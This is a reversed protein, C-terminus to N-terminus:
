YEKGIVSSVVKEHIYSCEVVIWLFIYNRWPKQRAKTFSLSTEAISFEFGIDEINFSERVL